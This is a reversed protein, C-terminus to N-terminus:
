RCPEPRIVAVRLFSEPKFAPRNVDSVGIRLLASPAPVRVGNRLICKSGTVALRSGTKAGIGVHCVQGVLDTREPKLKRRESSIKVFKYLNPLSLVYQYKSSFQTLVCALEM